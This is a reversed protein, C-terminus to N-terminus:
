LTLWGEFVPVASGGVHTAVVTGNKKDAEALLLSPRGMEIGQGIRYTFSGDGATEQSANVGALIVAASGTAPDEIQALGRSLMRTRVDHGGGDSERCYLSIGLPFDKIGEVVDLNPKLAGLAQLSTLEAVLFVAGCSAVLPPHRESLVDKEPLGVLEAVLAPDQEGLVTFDQPSTLRAAGGTATIEVTLPVLGAVEEFRAKLGGGPGERLRGQLALAVATGVNPHGAFPMEYTPTFIRVQADNELSDPRCVFTTESYGFERAIILMQESTLGDADFVVALPNGGFRQDTFVDLTMYPLRM